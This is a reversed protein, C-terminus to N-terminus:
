NSPFSPPPPPGMVTLSASASAGDISVTVTGTTSTAPAATKVNFLVKTQGSSITITPSVIVYPSNSSATFVFGGTPAHASTTLTAVASAGGLVSTPAISLSLLPSIDFSLTHATETDGANDVSWYTLTHSGYASITMPGIYATQAGGDLTTYTAAIGTGSHDVVSLTATVNGTYWGGSSLTGQLSATTTPPGGTVALNASVSAGDLSVSVAASTSTPPLTTKVNFLVKTQGSAITVTKPVIVYTSSSSANFVFGGTPAHASTTLTAVASAGGLVSSPAITLAAVPSIDFTLTHATETNGANDVSWYSLTHSGYASVTLASTYATQAGGDLTYYTAAVGSLNDTASLTATVNGTYWGGPALTGSLKATTVPPTTDITITYATSTESSNAYGAQEAIARVTASSTLTFTGGSALTKASTSTAPDTGDTTYDISATTQSASLTV